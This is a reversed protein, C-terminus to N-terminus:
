FFRRKLQASKKKLSTLIGHKKKADKSTSKRASKKLSRFVRADVERKTEAEPVSFFRGRRGDMDSKEELEPGDIFVEDDLTENFSKEAEEIEVRSLNVTPIRLNTRSPMIKSFNSREARTQFRLLFPRITSFYIASKGFVRVRRISRVTSLHIRSEFEYKPASFFLFVDGVVILHFKSWELDSDNMENKSCRIPARYCIGHFYDGVQATKPSQKIKAETDKKDPRNWSFANSPSMKKTSGRLSFGRQKKPFNSEEFIEVSDRREGADKPVMEVYEPHLPLTFANPAM